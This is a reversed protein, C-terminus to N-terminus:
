VGAGKAGAAPVAGAAAQGPAPPVPGPGGLAKAATAAVELASTEQKSKFAGLIDLVHNWAGSGGSAALGIVACGVWNLDAGLGFPLSNRVPAPLQSAIVAGAVAAIVQLIAARYGDNTPWPKALPPIAGKIVEVVREVAMSIGALMAALASLGTLISSTDQM